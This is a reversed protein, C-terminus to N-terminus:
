QSQEIAFSEHTYVSFAKMFSEPFRSMLLTSSVWVVDCKTWRGDNATCRSVVFARAYHTGKSWTYWLIELITCLQMNPLWKTNWLACLKAAIVECTIDQKIIRHFLKILNLSKIEQLIFLRYSWYGSSLMLYYNKCPNMICNLFSNLMTLLVLYISLNTM